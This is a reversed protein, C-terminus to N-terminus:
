NVEDEVCLIDGELYIETGPSDVNNKIEFKIGNEFFLNLRLLSNLIGLGGLGPMNGDDSNVDVTLRDAKMRDNIEQIKGPDFGKWQGPHFNEM